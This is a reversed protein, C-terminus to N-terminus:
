LIRKINTEVQHHEEFISHCMWLYMYCLDREWLHNFCIYTMVNEELFVKQPFNFVQGCNECGRNVQYSRTLRAQCYLWSEGVSTVNVCCKWIASTVQTILDKALLGPLILLIEKHYLYLHGYKRPHQKSEIAKGCHKIFQGFATIKPMLVSIEKSYFFSMLM